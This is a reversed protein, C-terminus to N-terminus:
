EFFEQTAYYSSNYVFATKNASEVPNSTLNSAFNILYTLNQLNKINPYNAPLYQLQNQLQSFNGSTLMSLIINANYPNNQINNVNNLFATSNLNSLTSATNLNTLNIRNDM